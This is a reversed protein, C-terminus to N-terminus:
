EKVLKFLDKREKAQCLGPESQTNEVDPSSLEATKRKSLSRTSRKQDSKTEISPPSISRQLPTKRSTSPKSATSSSEPNIERGFVM